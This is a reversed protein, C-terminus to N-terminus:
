FPAPAPPEPAERCLPEYRMMMKAGESAHLEELRVWVKGVWWNDIVDEFVAGFGNELPRLQRDSPKGLVRVLSREAEDFQFDLLYGDVECFRGKTFWLGVRSYPEPLQTV